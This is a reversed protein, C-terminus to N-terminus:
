AQAVNKKSSLPGEQDKAGFHVAMTLGSTGSLDLSSKRYGEEYFPHFPVFNRQVSVASAHRANNNMQQNINSSSAPALVSHSPPPAYSLARYSAQQRPRASSPSSALPLARGERVPKLVAHDSVHRARRQESITSATKEPHGHGLARPTSDTESPSESQHEQKSSSSRVAAISVTARREMKGGPSSSVWSKWSSTHNDSASRRGLMPRKSAEAQGTNGNPSASGSVNRSQSQSTTANSKPTLANNAPSSAHIKSPSSTSSIGFFSRKALPSRLPSANSGPTWATSPLSGLRPTQPPSNVPEETNDAHEDEESVQSAHPLMTANESITRRRSKSSSLTSSSSRSFSALRTSLRRARPRMESLDKANSQTITQSGYSSLSTKSSSTASIPSIRSADSSSGSSISSFTFLRTLFPPRIQLPTENGAQDTRGVDSAQRTVAADPLAASGSPGDSPLIPSSQSSSNQAHYSHRKGSIHSSQGHPILLSSLRSRVGENSPRPSAASLSARRGPSPIALKEEFKSNSTSTEDFQAHKKCAKKGKCRNVISEYLANANIGHHHHHHPHSSTGPHDSISSSCSTSTSASTNDLEPASSPAQISSANSNGRSMPWTKVDSSSAQANKAYHHVNGHSEKSRSHISPPSSTSRSSSPSM